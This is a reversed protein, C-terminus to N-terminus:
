SSTAPDTRPLAIPLPAAPELVAPEAVTKSEASPAMAREDALVRELAVIAVEIQDHTPERTTLGQLALSPALLWRVLRVHYYRAGLRVLEYGIGAIVPVLLIRSAIRLELSPRGLLAFVLVSLLVVILLFGTGCRPHALGYRSVVEPTLPAGDELANITKHEAGHYMFVRQIEGLRGILYIYGVLILLRFGGEVLNSVFSSEIRSDIFGTLALPLVFFLAISMTLSFALTGWASKAGFQVEQEGMAVNASFMLSRMGLVLMEGLMVVGRIFPLKAWRSRYIRSRLPEAHVVIQGEPSRAAVAFGRQGRMMVGEIVAQGGYFVKESM